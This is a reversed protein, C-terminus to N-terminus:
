IDWCGHMSTTLGATTQQPQPSSHPVAYSLTLVQPHSGTVHGYTDPTRTPVARTQASRDSYGAAQCAAYVLVGVTHGHLQMWSCACTRDLPARILIWHTHPNHKCDGIRPAHPTARGHLHQCNPSCAALGSSLTRNVNLGHSDQM